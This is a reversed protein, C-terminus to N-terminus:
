CVWIIQEHVIESYIGGGVVIAIQVNTDSLVKSIEQATKAVKEADIGYGTDNPAFAEGSLKLLIRSYKPKSM